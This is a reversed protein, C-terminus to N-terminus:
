LLPRFRADWVVRASPEHSSCLVARDVHEASVFPKLALVLLKTALELGLLLHGHRIEVDREVIVDAVVEQAEHKYGAMRNKRGLRANRERESQKSAQRGLLDRTCEEDRLRGDGLSDDPGLPSQRLRVDRELDGAATLEGGTQGRHELDDVEDEVFSVRRGGTAVPHSRGEALVSKTEPTDQGLESRLLRLNVAQDREHLDLRRARSRAHVRRTLWDQQEVLVTSLPVM